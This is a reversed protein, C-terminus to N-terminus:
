HPQHPRAQGSAQRCPRDGTTKRAHCDRCRRRGTAQARPQADQKDQKERRHLARIREITDLMRAHGHRVLMQEAGNRHFLNIANRIGMRCRRIGVRVHIPRKGDVVMVMRVMSGAKSGREGRLLHHQDNRGLAEVNRMDRSNHARCDLPEFSRGFRLGEGGSIRAEGSAHIM